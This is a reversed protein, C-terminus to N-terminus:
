CLFFLVFVKFPHFFSVEIITVPASHGRLIAQRFGGTTSSSVANRFAKWLGHSTPSTLCVDSQLDIMVLLSHTALLLMRGEYLLVSPGGNYGLLRELSLLRDSPSVEPVQYRVIGASGLTTTTAAGVLGVTSPTAFSSAKLTHRPTSLAQSLVTEKDAASPSGIVHHHHGTGRKTPSQPPATEGGIAASPISSKGGEQAAASASAVKRNKMATEKKLTAKNTDTNLDPRVPSHALVSDNLDDMTFLASSAAPAAASSAADGGEAFNTKIALGAPKVSKVQTELAPTEATVKQGFAVTVAPPPSDQALMLTKQVRSSKVSKATSEPSKMTGAAPLTSCHEIMDVWQMEPVSGSQPKIALEKPLLRLESSLHKDSTVIDRFLM